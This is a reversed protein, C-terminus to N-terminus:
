RGFQYFVGGAVRVFTSPGAFIMLEPKFGWRDNVYYRIGGGFNVYFDTDSAESETTVGAITVSSHFSAHLIGLGAGAYPAIKDKRPFLYHGGFNYNLAKASGEATIGLIDFSGGEGFPIYSIDGFVFIRDRITTGGGAGFEGHTGDLGAVIGAHGSVEIAGQDQAQAGVALFLCVIFATAIVLGPHRKISM